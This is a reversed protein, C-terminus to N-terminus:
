VARRFVILSTLFRIRRPESVSYSNEHIVSSGTALVNPSYFKSYMTNAQCTDIMFFLENYRDARCLVIDSVASPGRMGASARM